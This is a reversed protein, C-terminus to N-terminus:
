SIARGILCGVERRRTTAACFCPSVHVIHPKSPWNEHAQKARPMGTRDPTQPM